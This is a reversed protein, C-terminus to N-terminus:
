HDGMYHCSECVVSVPKFRVIQATDSLEARHCKQCSVNAHAGTLPFVSQTNHDFVLNHWGVPAHCRHCDTNGNVAFQGRHADVHCSECTRSLGRYQVISNTSRHCQNCTIASHRGTLPLGTASHDFSPLKWEKTSHCQACGKDRMADRFQNDHPNSHCSECRLDTFRFTSRNSGAGRHCRSCPTAAHGGDLAFRSVAHQSLTFTSPSFGVVTHCTACERTRFTRFEGAHYDSHCDACRQHPPKLVRRNGRGSTHCKECSVLAHRGELRFGTADHNFAATRVSHWGAPSHCTSCRAESFQTRHPSSHCPACDSFSRALLAFSPELTGEREQVHCKACALAMHLGELPFHTKQHDFKTVSKWGQETHCSQCNEEVTGRHRDEHCSRCDDNLGLYTARKHDKTLELVKRDKVHKVTHCEACRVHAHKGALPFGTRTHDFSTSDFKTIKAERGLHEKHCTVCGSLSNAFHFGHRADLLHKIEVHCGLCKAGSIQQGVEHCSACQNLGELTAHAKSLEGPSFQAMAPSIWVAQALLLLTLTWRRIGEVKTTLRSRSRAASPTSIRVHRRQWTM